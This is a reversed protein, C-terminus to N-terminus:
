EPTPLVDWLEALNRRNQGLDGNGIRSASRALLAVSDGRPELLLYVDDVFRFLRTTRTLWVIPGSSDVIRWRPPLGAAGQLLRARADGVPGPLVRTRLRPDTATDSTVAVNRGSGMALLGRFEAESPPSPSMPSGTCAALLLLPLLPRTFRMSVLYRRPPAQASVRFSPQPLPYSRWPHNLPLGAGGRESGAGSKSEKLTDM